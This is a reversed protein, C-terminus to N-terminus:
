AVVKGGSFALEECLLKAIPLELMMDYCGQSCYFKGLVMAGHVTGPRKPDTSEYPFHKSVIVRIM